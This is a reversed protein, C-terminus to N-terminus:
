QQGLSRQSLSGQAIASNGGFAARETNTLKEKKTTVEAAGGLGFSEVVLDQQSATPDYLRGLRLYANQEGLARNFGGVAADFSSGYATGSIQDLISASLGVGQSNAAGLVTAKSLRAQYQSQLFPLTRTPDLQYAAMETDTM